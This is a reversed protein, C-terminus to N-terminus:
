DNIEQASHEDKFQNCKAAVILNVRQNNTLVYKM